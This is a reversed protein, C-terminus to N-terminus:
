GPIYVGAGRIARVLEKTSLELLRIADPFDGSGAKHEAEERLQDARGVFTQIVQNSQASPRKDKLVVRVLMHHTDNRDLEYRYEEEKSSFNLSHVLTKGDRLGEVALKATEYGVDLLVRAQDVNGESLLNQAMGITKEVDAVTKAADERGSADSAIRMLANLLVRTSEARGEFDGIKRQVVETPPGLVRIAQFMTETAETLLRDARAYYGAELAMGAKEIRRLADLRIKRSLENSGALVRRAGSSSELLRQVNALRAAIRGSDDEPTGSQASVGALSEIFLGAIMVALLIGRTM